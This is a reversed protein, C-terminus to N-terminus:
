FRCKSDRQLRRCDEIMGSDGPKRIVQKALAQCRFETLSPHDGSCFILLVPPAQTRIPTSVIHDRDNTHRTAKGTSDVVDSAVPPEHALSPVRDHFDGGRAPVDLGEIIGMRTCGPFGVGPVPPEDIGYILKIRLKKPDS